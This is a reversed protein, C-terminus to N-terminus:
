GKMRDQKKEAFAKPSLRVKVADLDDYPIGFVTHFRERYIGVTKRWRDLVLNLYKPSKLRLMKAAEARTLGHEEIYRLAPHKNRNADERKLAM